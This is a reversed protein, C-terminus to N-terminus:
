LIAQCLKMRATQLNPYDATILAKKRKRKKEIFNSGVVYEAGIMM